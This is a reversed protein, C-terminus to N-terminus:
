YMEGAKSSEAKTMLGPGKERIQVIVQASHAFGFLVVLLLAIAPAALWFAAMPGLLSVILWLQGGVYAFLALFFTGLTLKWQYGTPAVYALFEADSELFSSYILVAASAMTSLFFGSLAVFNLAIYIFESTEEEVGFDILQDGMHEGAGSITVMTLMLASVLSLNQLSQIAGDRSKIFKTAVRLSVCDCFAEGISYVM